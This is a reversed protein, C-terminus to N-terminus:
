PEHFRHSLLVFPHGVTSPNVPTTKGDTGVVLHQALMMESSKETKRYDCLQGCGRDRGTGGKM